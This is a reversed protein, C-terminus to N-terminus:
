YGLNSYENKPLLLIKKFNIFFKQLNTKSNKFYRKISLNALIINKTNRFSKFRYWLSIITELSYLTEIKNLNKNYIKEIDKEIDFDKSLFINKINGKIINKEISFLISINDLSLWIKWESYVTAIKINRKELIFRNYNLKIIKFM